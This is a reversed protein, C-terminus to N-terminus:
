VSTDALRPLCQKNTQVTSLMQFKCRYTGWPQELFESTLNWFRSRTMMYSRCNLDIYPPCISTQVNLHDLVPKNIDFCKRWLESFPLIHKVFATPEVLVRDSGAKDVHVHFCIRNYEKWGAELYKGWHVKLAHKQNRVALLKRTWWQCQMSCLSCM